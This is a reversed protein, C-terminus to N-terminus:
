IEYISKNPYLEQLVEKMGSGERLVTDGISFWSRGELARYISERMALETFKLDECWVGPPYWVNCYATKLGFGYDKWERGEFTMRFREKNYVIPCHIDFDHLTKGFEAVTNEMQIRQAENPVRHTQIVGRHYYLFEGAVYDTLLFHDDNMFLFNDSLEEHLLVEDYEIHAVHTIGAIIKSYINHARHKNDKSEECPIHIINQLFDPKEGVIFINGVGSLHKEISRLCYRIELNDNRSGLGLPILIDTTIM